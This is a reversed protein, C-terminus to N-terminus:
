GHIERLGHLEMKEIVRDIEYASLYSNRSIWPQFVWDPVPQPRGVLKTYEALVERPTGKFCFVDLGGEPVEVRLEDPRTAGCDFKVKGTCNVFLGYGASSIFFPVAFYSKSGGGWADVLWSEVVRGRLNFADFREGFGWLAGGAKLRLRLTAKDGQVEAALFNSPTNTLTEM